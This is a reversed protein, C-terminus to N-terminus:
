LSYFSTMALLRKEIVECIPHSKKGREHINTSLLLM